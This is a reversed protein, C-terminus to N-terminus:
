FGFTAAKLLKSGLYVKGALDKLSRVQRLQELLYRPRRYFRLYARQLFKLLQDDTFIENWFRPRFRPDPHRAFQRWYDTEFFGDDLAQQYVATGPYPTFIGIHAYDMPLRRLLDMTQDLDWPTEGPLGIMFYGLTEIGARRTAAFVRCVDGLDLHKGIRQQIRASGSEVGYHVRCCGARALAVIMEGTMTDVRSRIEWAVKFGVEGIRRCIELVRSRDITFTDDYFKIEEVGYRDVCEIMEEVVGAASRKRFRKGMQPRDCFICRGPCGRSSMMTTVRRGGALASHYRRPDILHRAPPYLSDMDEIYHSQLAGDSPADRTLVGPIGQLRGGGGLAELLRAFAHEGEGCVVVDVEPLAVTEEPFLTPHPGGFVITAAPATRRVARAVALADLLTFTMAQIGVVDPPDAALRAELAAMSLGEAQTDVVQVRCGAVREAYAAVYLLGLPPFVGTEDEVVAPLSERILQFTQPNILLIKMSHM